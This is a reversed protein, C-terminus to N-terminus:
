IQIGTFDNTLLPHNQDRDSLDTPVLPWDIGIAPDNFRVAGESDPTYSETHFYLLETDPQLAQFGHAFGEPIYLARMTDPTLKAAHWMLFTPSGARLDVIVDFCAGRLCRVIKTEAHPPNQYHMGRVAGKTRTLSQNIQSLPKKLGIEALEKQCFIRAFRGRADSFPEAEILWAGKLPLATFQM